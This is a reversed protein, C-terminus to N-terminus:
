GNGDLFPHVREFRIHFFALAALTGQPDRAALAADLVERTQLLALELERAIRPPDAAPYGAVTTVRGPTRFEGAWPHVGKFIARHVHRIDVVTLRLPPLIGRLYALADRTGLLVAQEYQEVTQISPLLPLRRVQNWRHPSQRGELEPM